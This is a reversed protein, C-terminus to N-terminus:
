LMEGHENRGESGFKGLAIETPDSKRGMKANFDGCIITFHTTVQNLAKTIDDYFIEMEDESHDSTPAYAQIIKLNHRSNLKLIM